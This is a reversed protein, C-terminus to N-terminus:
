LDAYHMCLLNIHVLSTVLLVNMMEIEQTMLISFIIHLTKKKRSLVHITPLFSDNQFQYSSYDM